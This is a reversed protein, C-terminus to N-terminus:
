KLTRLRLVFAALLIAALIGLTVPDSARGGLDRDMVHSVFHVAAGAFGGLLAVTLADRWFLAGLLAVGIGLQFAGLDHFLHLNFPDFTAITRHFSEPWLFSWAGPILFVLAGLIVSGTVLAGPTQQGSKHQSPTQQPEAKPVPSEM